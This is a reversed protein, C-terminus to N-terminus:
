SSPPKRFQQGCDMNLLTWRGFADGAGHKHGASCVPRGRPCEGPQRPLVKSDPATHAPSAMPVAVASPDGTPVELTVKANMAPQGLGQGSPLQGIKMQTRLVRQAHCRCNGRGTQGWGPFGTM